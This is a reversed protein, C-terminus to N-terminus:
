PAKEGLLEPLLLSNDQLYTLKAAAIKYLQPLVLYGTNKYNKRSAYDNECTSCDPLKIVVTTPQM